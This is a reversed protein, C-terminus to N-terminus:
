ATLIHGLKLFEPKDYDPSDLCVQLRLSDHPVTNIGTDGLEIVTDTERGYLDVAALIQLAKTPNINPWGRETKPFSQPHNRATERSRDGITNINPESRNLNRRSAPQLGADCSSDVGHGDIERAIRNKEHTKFHASREAM